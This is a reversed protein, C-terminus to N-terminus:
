FANTPKEYKESEEKYNIYTEISSIIDILKNRTDILEQEILEKKNITKYREIIKDIQNKLAVYDSLKDPQPVFSPCNFCNNSGKGCKAKEGLVTKQYCMGYMVPRIKALEKDDFSIDFKEQLIGQKRFDDPINNKIRSVRDFSHNNYIVTNEINAHNLSVQIINEPVEFDQLMSAVTHRFQHTTIHLIKGNSGKIEEEKFFDNIDKNVRNCNLVGFKRDYVIYKCRREHTKIYDSIYDYLDKSILTSQYKLAKTSYSNLYYYGNNCYLCDRELSAVESFRLGTYVLVVIIFMYREDLKNIVSFIRQIDSLNIDNNKYKRSRDYKYDSENVINNKVLGEAILYDYFNDIAHIKTNVTNISVKLNNKYNLLMNRSIKEYSCSTYNLFESIQNITSQICEYKRETYIIQNEAYNYLVTYNEPTNLNNFRIVKKEKGVYTRELRETNEYKGIYLVPYKDIQHSIVIREDIYNNAYLFHLFDDPSSLYKRTADYCQNLNRIYLKYADIIEYNIKSLEIKNESIYNFFCSLYNLKMKLYTTKFGKDKKLADIYDIVIQRYKEPFREFCIDDVTKRKTVVKKKRKSVISICGSILYERYVVMKNKISDNCNLSDIENIECINTKYLNLYWKAGVITDEFSIHPLDLTLMYNVFKKFEYYNNLDKMDFLKFSHEKNKYNTVIERRSIEKYAMPNNVMYNNVYYDIFVKFHAMKLRMYKKNIKGSCVENVYNIVSQETIIGEDVEANKMFEDLFRVKMVIDGLTNETNEILYNLYKKIIETKDDSLWSIGINKICNSTKPKGQKHKLEIEPTVHFIINTTTYDILRIKVLEKLYLCDFFEKIIFINTPRDLNERVWDCYKNFDEQSYEKVSKDKLSILFNSSTNFHRRATKLKNKGDFIWYCYEILAERNSDSPIDKIIIFEDKYKKNFRSLLVREM